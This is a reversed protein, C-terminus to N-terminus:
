HTLCPGAFPNPNYKTAPFIPDGIVFAFIQCCKNLSARWYTVDDYRRSRVESIRHVNLSCTFLATEFYLFVKVCKSLCRIQVTLLRESV